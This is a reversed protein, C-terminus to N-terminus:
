KFTVILCTCHWLLSQFVLVSEYVRTKNVFTTNQGDRENTSAQYVDSPSAFCRPPSFDDPFFNNVVVLLSTLRTAGPIFKLYYKGKKRTCASSFVSILLMISSSSESSGFIWTLFRRYASSSFFTFMKVYLLLTCYFRQIPM